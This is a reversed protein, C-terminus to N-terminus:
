CLSDDACSLHLTKGNVSRSIFLDLIERVAGKAAMTALMEIANHSIRRGMDGNKRIGFFCILSCANVDILVLIIVFIM